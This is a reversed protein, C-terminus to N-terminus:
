KMSEPISPLPAWGRWFESKGDYQSYVAVGGRGLLQLKVGRPCSTMERWFYTDDVAVTRAKVHYSGDKQQVRVPETSCVHAFDLDSYYGCKRCKM